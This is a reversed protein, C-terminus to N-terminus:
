RLADIKSEIRDLSELEEGMPFGLVIGVMMFDPTDLADGEVFTKISRQYEFTPGFHLTRGKILVSLSTGAYISEGEIGTFDSGSGTPDAISIKSYQIYPSVTATIKKSLDYSLWLPATVNVGEFPGFARGGLQFGASAQLADSNVFRYKGNIEFYMSGLAARGGLTFDDTMGVGFAVEPILNPLWGDSEASASQTEAGNEDVEAEQASTTWKTANWALTVETQDEKLTRAEGYVGLPLCATSTLALLLISLTAKINMIREEYIFIEESMNGPELEYCGDIGGTTTKVKHTTDGM